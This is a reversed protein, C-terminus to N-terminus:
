LILMEPKAKLFAAAARRIEMSRQKARPPACEGDAPVSLAEFGAAVVALDAENGPL